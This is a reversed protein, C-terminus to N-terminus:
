QEVAQESLVDLAQVVPVGSSILVQLQRTFGVLVEIAVAKNKGGLLSGLDKNLAGGRSIKVPRIGQNRLAMRLEGENIVELSGNVKKGARDVGQYQYEAMMGGDHDTQGIPFRPWCRRWSTRSWATTSRM